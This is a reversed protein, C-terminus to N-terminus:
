EKVLRSSTVKGEITAKVIYVGSQLNAVDLTVLESNPTKVVVEQGLVNYISVKEINLDSEINLVNTAPNPYFKVNSAIFDPTGLTNKHLYLNDYYVIGLDSTIVFQVVDNRAAGNIPTFSDLPIDVSIWTGPNPNTLFNSNNISYDIANAEGAGGNWNSFKVNFSKDLTPTETWIDMHFHTFTTADFRGALFTVGECGLNTVKHTDNGAIQVLTTNGGCWSNNYTNDDGTYGIVSIPTYANSFISKVDAAPRAPPTPAATAPEAPPTISAAESTINDVYVTFNGPPNFGDNTAKWNPFFVIKQYNGNAVGTGDLSQTFTFTLTQWTNPTTYSQSAASIPGTGSEVKGLMTFAQTAYVDVSVTKDTTLKLFTTQQIVEAGQWPNGTSQSVLKLNNLRTGGPAPDVDISASALGEFGNFVYSAPTEFNQVVVQQANGLASIILIFLLTIKKM